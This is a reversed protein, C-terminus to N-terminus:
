GPPWRMIQLAGARTRGRSANKRTSRKTEGEHTHHAQRDDDDVRWREERRGEGGRDEEDCKGAKCIQVQISNSGM